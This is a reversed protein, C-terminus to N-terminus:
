RHGIQRASDGEAPTAGSAARIAEMTTRAKAQWRSAQIQGFIELAAATHERAQLYRNQAAEVEGLSLQIRGVALREGTKQAKVIAQELLAAADAYHGSRQWTVGLGLLAYSEGVPDGLARVAELAEGFVRAAEALDGSTLHADGLRCLIQARVRRNGSREVADLGAAITQKAQALQGRELQIQAMNSMVHAEATPDDVEGLLRLADGYGTMAEDLHGHVRDVFALNRRALAEGHVDKVEIFLEMANRLRVRAEDLKYECMHLAGLSYQMAAEGRRNNSNQTAALAVGHTARWDDFYNNVEFMSVATLALDWCLEDLGAGAAQRVATVLNLREVEYWEVPDALEMDVIMPDLPVRAASGHILTHDGGYMRRHAEEVLFLWSGLLRNLVASRGKTSEEGALREHAYVRILDHLQYRPRRGKIVEVDVLQADVLQELTDEAEVASVGLLPVAVWPAFEASELMSLRRFLCQATEPLEQYTLALSARVGVGGHTLENLRQREDNLRVVMHGITWHPKAVLRAAVVRLALALDGCLRALELANDPEADVRDPGLIRGLVQLSQATTFVDIRVPRTGELGTLRSRSTIVVPCSPTGPLLWRVQQENVADDLVILIRQDAVENRYLEAREELTAPVESGRIGLSRLFRELIQTPPVPQAAPDRLKAFLQGDPFRHAVSHGLQVALTTKGVGGKGTIPLIRLAHPSEPVAELRAELKALTDDRAAFDAAAGPLLRPVSSSNAALPADPVDPVPPGQQVPPQAAPLDRVAAHAPSPPPGELEGSLIAKELSRLEKGPEIGLEEILENRGRRYIELAEAQRGSRYLAVMLQARLHERLPNHLVVDILEEVLQQHLGLALRADIWEETVALRQESLRAVSAQLALSTSGVLLDGRWLALAQGFSEAAESFRGAEAAGRGEAALREFVRLDLDEDTVDAVYGPPRTRIVDPAGIKALASRVISICIQIQGRATPPPSDWVADVLSDASVIRRAELLLAFLVARQRDATIHASGEPGAVELSGLIRFRM